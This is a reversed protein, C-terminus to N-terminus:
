SSVKLMWCLGGSAPTATGSPSQPMDGDYTYPISLSQYPELDTASSSMGLVGQGWTRANSNGPSTFNYTAGSGIAGIYYWGPPLKTATVPLERAESGTFTVPASAEILLEDPLGDTGWSYVGATFTGVPCGYLVIADVTGTTFHCFPMYTISTNAGAVAAAFDMPVPGYFSRGYAGDSGDPFGPWIPSAVAPTCFVRKLGVGLHLASTTGSSNAIVRTREMTTASTMTGVGIEWVGTPTIDSSVAELCYGFPAPISSAYFYTSFRAFGLSAALTLAGTGTTETTELVRSAIM